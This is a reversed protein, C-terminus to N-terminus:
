ARKERLKLFLLQRVISQAESGLAKNFHNHIEEFSDYKKVAEELIKHFGSNTVELGFVEHTLLGVNEGFTNRDIRQITSINGQRYLKWVCLNSVEQLVVPSHTAILGVANRKMLLSSLSRIYASLLPPHLHTEPEDLIVLTREEVTAVLKTIGLLIIKHGSSLKSFVESATEQVNEPNDIRTISTIDAESFVPDTELEQLAARWREHKAGRSCVEIAKVFENKLLTHSKIEGTSDPRILGIYSYGLKGIKAKRDKNIISNDFASFNVSVLNSFILGDDSENEFKGYKLINTNSELLSNIMNNLLHTKGVGNRGIIVHINSPPESNPDVKFELKIPPNIISSRSFATYTIHYNTLEVQGNSLRHFESKVQLHSIDRLLSSQVVPLFMVEKFRKQNFALDGLALLVEERLEEGLSNLRKYYESDQGLSFFNTGLKEFSPPLQPSVKMENEQAIKLTGIDTIEGEQDIFELRYLTQYKFWDNWSSHLLRFVNVKNESSNSLIFQAM